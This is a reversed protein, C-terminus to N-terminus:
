ITVDQAGRQRLFARWEALYFAFGLLAGSAIIGGIYTLYESSRAPHEFMRYAAFYVQGLLMFSLAIYVFIAFSSAWSRAWALERATKTTSETEFLKQFHPFGRWAVYAVAPVAVAPALDILLDWLVGTLLEM